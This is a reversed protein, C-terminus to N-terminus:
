LVINRSFIRVQRIFHAVRTKYNKAMFENKELLFLIQSAISVEKIRLSKRKGCPKISREQKRAFVSKSSM